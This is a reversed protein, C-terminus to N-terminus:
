DAEPVVPGEVIELGVALEPGQRESGRPLLDIGARDFLRTMTADYATLMVIREGREKMQALDPVRVIKHAISM